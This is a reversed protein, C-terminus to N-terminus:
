ALQRMIIALWRTPKQMLCPQKSFTLYAGSETLVIFKTPTEDILKANQIILEGNEYVNYRRTVNEIHALIGIFIFLLVTFLFKLNKM